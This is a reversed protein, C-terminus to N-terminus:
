PKEMHNSKPHRSRRALRLALLPGRLENVKPFRQRYDSHWGARKVLAAAERELWALAEAETMRLDSRTRSQPKDFLNM